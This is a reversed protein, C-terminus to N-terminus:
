VYMNRRWGGPSPPSSNRGCRRWSLSSAQPKMTTTTTTVTTTTKRTVENSTKCVDVVETTSTTTQQVIGNTAMFAQSSPAKRCSRRVPTPASYRRKTAPISTFDSAGELCEELGETTRTCLAATLNVLKSNGAADKSVHLHVGKTVDACTQFFSTTEASTEGCRVAVCRVSQCELKQLMERWDISNTYSNITYGPEHPTAGGVLMLTRNHPSAQWGMNFSTKGLALEYCQSEDGGRTPKVNALFSNLKTYDKTLPLFRIVYSSRKDCYDGHVIIGVRTDPFKAMVSALNQFFYDRMRVFSPWMKPTTDLSFVLEQGALCIRFPLSRPRPWGRSPPYRAHSSSRSKFGCDLRDPGKALRQAKCQPNVQTSAAEGDVFFGFSRPCDVSSRGLQPHKGVCVKSCGDHPLAERKADFEDLAGLKINTESRGHEVVLLHATETDDKHTRPSAGEERKNDAVDKGDSCSTRGCKVQGDGLHQETQGVM